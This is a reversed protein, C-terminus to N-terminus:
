KIGSTTDIPQTLAKEFLEIYLANGVSNLTIGDAELTSELPQAKEELDALYQDHLDFYLFSQEAEIEKLNELYSVYNISRSNYVEKLATSPPPTVLIVLAEPLQARIDEM